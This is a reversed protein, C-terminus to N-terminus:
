YLSSRCQLRKPKAWAFFERALLLSLPWRFLFTRYLRSKWPVAAKMPFDAPREPGYLEDVLLKYNPMASVEAEWGIRRFFRRLEGLTHENVHLAVDDDSRPRAPERLSLLRALARRVGYTWAKYYQRNVCTHVLVLGEPKLVRALESFCRELEWDHLHDMVGLFFVRDFSAAAFPLAKADCLVVPSGSVERALGLAAPAFDTGTGWAGAKRAHFLIEGRGCGIDLVRMGPALAARSLSYAHTPKLVEPGYLKFFEAGGCEEEFYRRSYLESSVPKDM